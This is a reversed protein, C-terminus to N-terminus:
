PACTDQQPDGVKYGDLADRGKAQDVKEPDDQAYNEAKEAAGGVDPM